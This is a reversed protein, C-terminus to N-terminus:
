NIRRTCTKKTTNTFRGLYSLLCQAYYYYYGLRERVRSTSRKRKKENEETTLDLGPLIVDENSTVMSEIQEEKKDDTTENQGDKEETNVTDSEVNTDKVELCSYLSRYIHYTHDRMLM